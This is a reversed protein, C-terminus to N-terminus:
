EIKRSAGIFWVLFAYCLLAIFGYGGFVDYKSAFYGFGLGALTHVLNEGLSQFSDITARMSSHTRHHLYGSAIPEMVGSFLCIIFMASLGIFDKSIAVYTFGVAFVVMIIFILARYSFWGLLLHAMLNGPLQLLMIAASLVGFYAVPIGLRSVYLQWFEEIYGMAAGTVMASLMVLSVSPNTRFFRLSVAVYTKFPIVENVSNDESAASPEILLISLTLAILASGFSIWYNLELGYKSALLSGCLAALIASVFDCANLRGLQKEYSSAKGQLMLSDYLLANESGSSASRSVGALFVVLAFHWFETAFLLMLFESCGLLASLVLMKKRGWKDAMIGTPIELFVITLAYIIETYVVMQITMGREEWFLREIVYAPILSSFFRLAYLKRLNATYDM